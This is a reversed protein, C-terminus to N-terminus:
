VDLNSLLGQLYMRRYNKTTNLRENIFRVIKTGNRLIQESLQRLHVWGLLEWQLSSAHSESHKWKRQDSVKISDIKFYLSCSSNFYRNNGSLNCSLNPLVFHSVRMLLTHLIWKNLDWKREVSGICTCLWMFCWQRLHLNM